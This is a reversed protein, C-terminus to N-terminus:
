VKGMYRKLLLYFVKDADSIKM